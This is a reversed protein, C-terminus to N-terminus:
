RRYGPIPTAFHNHLPAVAPNLGNYQSFAGHNVVQGAVNGLMSTRASGSNIDNLGELAIQLGCASLM